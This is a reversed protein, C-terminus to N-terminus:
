AADHAKLIAEYRRRAGQLYQKLFGWAMYEAAQRTGAFLFPIRYRGAFALISQCASHPNLQSRYRGGALDSWPAEIVVAFADLAAARMLEREFRDRERGLCQVLDGLEKREVAVRDTLGALSYDGVSLTGPMTEVHKDAYWAGSFTFPNQERTDVIIKM